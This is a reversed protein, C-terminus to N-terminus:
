DAAEFIERLRKPIKNMQLTGHKDTWDEPINMKGQAMLEFDADTYQKYNGQNRGQQDSLGVTPSHGALQKRGERQAEAIKGPLKNFAWVKYATELDPYRLSGDPRTEKMLEVVAFIPKLRPDVPDGDYGQFYEKMLQRISGGQPKLEPIKEALSTMEAIVNERALEQNHRQRYVETEKKLSEFEKAYEAKVSDVQAKAWRALDPDLFNDFEKTDPKAAPAQPKFKDGFKAKAYELAETKGQIYDEIFLQQREFNKKLTDVTTELQRRSRDHEGQKGNLEDKLKLLSELKAPAEDLTKAGIKELISGLKKEIPQDEEVAQDNPEPDKEVSEPKKVEAQPTEKTKDSKKAPKARGELREWSAFEEDTMKYNPNKRSRESARKIIDEDSLPAASEAQSPSGEPAQKEPQTKGAAAAQGQAQSEPAPGDATAIGGGASEAGEPARLIRVLM